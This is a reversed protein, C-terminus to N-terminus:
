LRTFGWGYLGNPLGSLTIIRDEYNSPDSDSTRHGISIIKRKEEVKKYKKMSYHIRNYLRLGYMSHRKVYIQVSYPFYSCFLIYSACLFNKKIGNWVCNLIIKKKNTGFTHWKLPAHNRFMLLFNLYILYFFAYTRPFITLFIYQQNKRRRVKKNNIYKRTLEVFFM